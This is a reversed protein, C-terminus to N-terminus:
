KDPDTENFMTLFVPKGLLEKKNYKKAIYSSGSWDKCIILAVSKSKFKIDQILHLDNEDIFNKVQENLNERTVTDKLGTAIITKNCESSGSTM